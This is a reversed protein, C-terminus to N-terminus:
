FLDAAPPNKAMDKMEEAAKLTADTIQAGGILRALESIQQERSLESILTQTKNHDSRKEILYHSDAMAAIQPLHTICLVQQKKSIAWLKEAVQQATRGSVGTDIEDFIFTEVTDADAVVSKIALMVRSMEGGSATSALPKLPEGPNASIMFEVRDFGDPTFENKRAVEVAFRAHRMGLFKLASEIENQLDVARAKRKQSIRECVLMMQAACKKKEANLRKLEDGANKMKDLEAKVQEQHALVMAISGGYKKKLKYLQDLREEIEELENPDDRLNESYSSLGRVLDALLDQIETLNGLMEDLNGDLAEAEQLLGVGAAIRSSASDDDGTLLGQAKNIYKSLRGVSSLVAKRQGLSEEENPKINADNIEDFQFQLIDISSQRNHGSGEIEKISRIIDRYQSLFNSLEAKDAEIDCFQDLLKVHMTPNLLSQHEHQGHIDVLFSSIERLMGVSISRGNLRCTSRGHDSLTRSIFLNGEDDPDFGMSVVASHNSPNVIAVLGEVYASQAGTRIFDKSPRAGLLFLISDILISKGAGTEGSLINLGVHFSIDAEEILAVNKIHLHNLM